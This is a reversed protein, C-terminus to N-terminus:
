PPQSSRESTCSSAASSSSCPSRVPSHCAWITLLVFHTVADGAATLTTGRLFGGIASVAAVGHATLTDARWSDLSKMARAWARDGDDLLYFTLFGGLVLIALVTGLPRCRGDREVAGM